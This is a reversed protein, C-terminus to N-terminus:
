ARPRTRNMLALVAVLVFIWPIWHLGTLYGHTNLSHRQQYAQNILGGIMSHFISVVLMILMNTAAIGVGSANPPCLTNFHKWVMVQASSCLGFLFAAIFIWSQLSASDFLMLASIGAALLAPIITLWTNHRIYGGLLGVLPSGIAWGLFIMFIVSSAAPTTLQYADRFFSIGWVATLLSTPLYFLGGTLGNLLFRPKILLHFLQKSLQWLSLPQYLHIKRDSYQGPMLLLLAAIVLGWISFLSIVIRWDLYQILWANLTQIISAALTGAAITIGSIFGFWNPPLYLRAIYLVSIFSCASSAGLIFRLTLGVFFTHAFIFAVFSVTCLTTMTIVSWKISYRDLIVGCPLQFLVYGLYFLSAFLGIGMPDTHYQTMLQTLVLSPSIRFFYDLCYFGITLLLTFYVIFRRYAM